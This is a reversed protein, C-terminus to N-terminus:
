RSVSPHGALWLRWPRAAWGDGAYEVGIRTGTAITLDDSPVGSEGSIWLGEGMTLDHGDLSRDVALAEALKAPGACLRTTAEHPRGRRTRMEEIGEIPEIARILVAGAPEEGAHGVVNLCHHMGYVLYVYAHGVEGYMPATRRTRGARAHSALDEPGGYAEVEVIPGGTLRGDVSRLLWKGVLDRGVEPTPRRFFERTLPALLDVSSAASM